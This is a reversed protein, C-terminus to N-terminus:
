ELYGLDRLRQQIEADDVNAARQAEVAPRRQRATNLFAALEQALRDKQGADGGGNVGHVEQPDDLLSFLWDDVGEISILKHQGQYAARHTARCNLEDILIPKHEEMVELAFTPAYAESIVVSEADSGDKGGNVLSLGELRVRRGSVDEYTRVRAAELTTHFLRAASAPEAIRKGSRQGPSRIILPVHILEEYVGFGHGMLRHEGLMEGHDGVFIVMTNDRHKPQDLLELLPALLHDQYAAEADYMQGLVDIELESFPEAPPTFWDAARRNFDRMFDHAPGGESYSPAFRDLFTKPPTYPLHTEMLNVFV